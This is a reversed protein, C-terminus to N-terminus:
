QKNQLVARRQNFQDERLSDPHKALYDKLEDVKQVAQRTQHNEEYLTILLLMGDWYEADSGRRHQAARREMLALTEDAKEKRGLGRYARVQLAWLRWYELRVRRLEERKFEVSYWDFPRIRQQRWEDFRIGQESLSLASEPSGGASLLAEAKGLLPSPEPLTEPLRVIAAGPCQEEYTKREAIERDSNRYAESGYIEALARHAPSFEPHIRIIENLAAIAATTSRGMLSRAYLYEYFLDGEHQIALVNYEEGMARLHGEVGHRSVADQYAEHVFINLPYRNRLAQYLAINTDFDEVRAVPKSDARRLEARIDPSPQCPVGTARAALVASLIVFAYAVM